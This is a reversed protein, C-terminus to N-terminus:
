NLANPFAHFATGAYAANLATQDGMRVSGRNATNVNINPGEATSRQQLWGANIYAQVAAAVPFGYPHYGNPHVGYSYAVYGTAPAPLTSPGPLAPPPVGAAGHANSGHHVATIGALNPFAPNLPAPLSAFNADATLLVNHANVDTSPLRTSIQLALGTNNLLMAPPSGPPPTAVLLTYNPLASIAPGAYMTVNTLSNFFNLAAPGFPQTYMTWPLNQLGAVHGLRWHDYDWHSLVIEINGATNQVIPGLYGPTGFRMNAPLSNRYFPLPYGIDYYTVPQDQNILLNCNGMGIDMVGISSIPPVPPPLVAPGVARFRKAAPMFAAGRKRKGGVTGTAEIATTEGPPPGFWEVKGGQLLRPMSLMKAATLEYTGFNQPKGGEVGTPEPM